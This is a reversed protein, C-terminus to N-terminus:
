FTHAGHAGISHIYQVGWQNDNMVDTELHSFQLRLRSFESNSWDTMLSIRVPDDALPDLETGAFIAGPNDASLMDFRAGFRWHPVPQYTGQVYWGSQNVDYIQVNGGPLTYNGNENRWLYEGQLVFNKQKWNGQPAWKWVFDAILLDSDGSFRLPNDANGSTRGDSGSHLYSLGALWSSNFGADGGVHLFAAHSGFGSDVAGAAPYRSGRMIEGGFEMYLDTPALWRVQLGDDLYQGGLFAQYPLPQDIYDWSHSHKGNLYGIGSFFRGIRAAFGHPLGLTEIWAEELEVNVEGDEVVVPMTLWATFKDDVNASMDLETEGLVMGRPGAGAEGGTPFGPIHVTDPNNDDAWARGSFIVGIAPNFDSSTLSSLMGGGASGVAPQVAPQAELADIRQELQQIRAQYDQQLRTLENRLETITQGDQTQASVCRSLIFVSIFVVFRIRNFM